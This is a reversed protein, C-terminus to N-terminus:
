NMRVPLVMFLFSREYILSGDDEPVMIIPSTAGNLRLTIEDTDCVKLADLLYKNNFGIEVREGQIDALIRDNATGLATTSSIRISEADFICRVYSKIRETIILSTREISSILNRTNVKVETKATTLIAAKYNLFEGELLRSIIVYNGCEFLIHRSAVVMSITECNDNILKVVENLTKKPVVFIKEEGNYDIKENRIALKYGDVSVLRINGSTVEFRVGTHIVKSDNEAAAFITKKVMDKLIEGGVVIPFGGSVSPLEPYDAESFGMISFESDGSKIKCILRDDCEISVLDDPVNRLIDCLIKANLIISGTQEVRGAVSTIIGVELDYGTLMIRDNEAKILIGEITPLNSSKTSTARQVNMCAESLIQSSCIFKM